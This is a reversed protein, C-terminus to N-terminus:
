AEETKKFIDPNGTYVMGIIPIELKDKFTNKLEKEVEKILSELAKIQVVSTCAFSDYAFEFLFSKSPVFNELTVYNFYINNEKELMVRVITQMIFKNSLVTESFICKEINAIEEKTLLEIHYNNRLYVFNSGLTSFKHYFNYEKDELPRGGQQIFLDDIKQFNYFKKFLAEISERYKIQLALFSSSINKQEILEYNFTDPNYIYM